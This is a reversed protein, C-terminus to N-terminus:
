TDPEDDVIVDFLELQEGVPMRGLRDIGLALRGWSKFHRGIHRTTSEAWTSNNAARLPNGILSDDTEPNSALLELARVAGPVNRRLLARLVRRQPYGHKDLLDLARLAVTGNDYVDAVGLAILDRLAKDVTSKPMGRIDERRGVMYRAVRLAPGPPGSPFVQPRRMVRRCSGLLVVKGAAPGSLRAGQRTRAVLGAYAFWDLFARAYQVWTKASVRLAPFAEPLVEAFRALTVEDSQLEGQEMLLSYARHRKLARSIQDRIASEKDTASMIDDSVRVRGPAAVLVGMQRLDRAANFIVGDTTSMRRAAESVSLDGGVETTTRLLRAVSSPTLRLIYTEQIPVRGTNLFDRFIDWYIDLQEGVAVVLRRDVLSQVVATPVLAVVESVRAPASRAITRLGEQEAPGLEALDSEFLRQVNLAETLLVEQSQGARLEGVLHSALKKFLWPLGQSYERLKRSLDPRLRQKTALRLRELLLSIDDPGFPPLVLVKARDRIEDRHQYPHGETWGILDTKWAFGLTLPVRVDSVALALDRFERTLRDDMFVNEFQDFFILVSAGPNWQSRAFTAVSSQLGAFSADPPLEVMGDAHCRILVTRLVLSVFRPESATRSDIVVALGGAAEVESKLRLALSSKGWGSQANVVMVRGNSASPGSFFDEILDTRGVFFQPSAPLQYEFDSTSGAVEVIVPEPEELAIAVTGVKAADGVPLGAGYDSNAVLDLVPLPVADQPAWVSVSTALRTGSDIEKAAAFIGTETIVIAQDSTLQTGGPREVILGKARLLSDIDTPTLVRFRSDSAGITRAFEDGDSTLGPIAVFVGYENPDTLRAVAVKGYFAAVSSSPINSTYVKCEGIAPQQTLVHRTVVDLEVGNSTVNLHKRTPAEFGYYELLGAVFSELLHGRKNAREGDSAGDVLIVVAPTSVTPIM